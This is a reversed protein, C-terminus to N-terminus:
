ELIGQDVWDWIFGGQLRPLAPDRFDNWYKDFSGGSNGMAHAYECLVVPRRKKDITAQKRCWAPRHYMPCIIDTADTRSGGSEYQVPRGADRARAWDAMLLHTPGVGSENGLSWAFVCASSKDREMMRALRSLHAGRWEPLQSLYGVAQGLSQFGHSEINTEDVVYLGAEDCLELWRTHNPYHATRVANFNHQKILRVDERMLAESVARGQQPDFELRNVGAVTVPQRNVCLQNHPPMFSVERFGVRCSESDLTKCGADADEVSPHLSLVLTYLNPTEACWLRFSSIDFEIVTCATDNPMSVSVDSEFPDGGTAKCAGVYSSMFPGSAVMASTKIAIATSSELDWLELRVVPANGKSIFGESLVEVRVAASLARGDADWRIDTKFEFDSIMVSPKKIVYVERYIGSLWWKDQDEMYSGDCWRMVQCVVIHEKGSGGKLADTVDFEAPLCSDQSYGVYTGDLWVHLCSDVGEFVLFFRDSGDGQWNAPLSFSRRYLGTANEGPEKPSIQQKTELTGGIGADCDTVRVDGTRRVYPPNFVFPYTTNTYIPVDYGQLQWHAPLQV